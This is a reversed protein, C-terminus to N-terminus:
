LIGLPPNVDRFFDVIKNVHINRIQYNSLYQAYTFKFKEVNNRFVIIPNKPYKQYEEFQQLLILVFTNFFIYNTFLM